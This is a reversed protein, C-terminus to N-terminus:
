QDSDKREQELTLRGWFAAAEAYLAASSPHGQHMHDAAQRGAWEALDAYIRYLTM